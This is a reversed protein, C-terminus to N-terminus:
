SLDNQSIVGCSFALTVFGEGDVIRLQSILYSCFMPRNVSKCAHCIIDMKSCVLYLTTKTHPRKRLVTSTLSSLDM